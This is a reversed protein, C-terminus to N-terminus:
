GALEGRTEPTLWYNDPVQGNPFPEESLVRRQYDDLIDLPNASKSAIAGLQAELDRIVRDKDVIALRLETNEENLRRHAPFLWVLNEFVIGAGM